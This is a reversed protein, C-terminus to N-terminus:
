VTTSSGNAVQRIVKIILEGDEPDDSGALITPQKKYCYPLATKIHEHLRIDDQEAKARKILGALEDILDVGLAELRERMMTRKQKSGKKNGAGEPRSDGKKFTM